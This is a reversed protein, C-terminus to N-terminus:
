DGNYAPSGPARYADLPSRVADSGYYRGSGEVEGFLLFMASRTGEVPPKMGMDAPSQGSSEAFPRTMDTEIFGPTCANINVEPNERALLLTLANACAKSIGYPNGDGLGAKEYTASDGELDLCDQMLSEIDAWSVDPDIFRRRQTESCTAVYSPGSASTVNVVRGHSAEMLPLFAECMRKAGLTNVNLAASLGGDTFGVGANNVLGYLSGGDLQAAVTAVAAAVSDDSGVDVCLLRLRGGFSPNEECLTKVAAEGRGADRSGLFVFADERENLIARVIALGVGKNAGTVIISKMIYFGTEGNETVYFEYHHSRPGTISGVTDSGISDNQGCGSILNYRLHM